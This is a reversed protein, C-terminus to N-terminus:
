QEGPSWFLERETSYALRSPHRPSRDLTKGLCYVPKGICELVQLIRTQWQMRPRWSVQLSGWAAVILSSREQYCHFAENNGPGIPDEPSLLDIPYTSRFGYLNMMYIGGYGWRKAFGICKSVTTDNKNEDATSPNLGIFMVPRIPEKFDWIRWLAYRWTRCPSFLAGKHDILGAM